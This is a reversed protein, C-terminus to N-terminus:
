TPHTSDSTKAAPEAPKNSDLHRIDHGEYLYVVEEAVNTAHDAIRELSKSVVMLNLCRTIASPRQAMLAAMERQLRTNMEDVAEDRPIVARAKTPDRHVFADLAHSWSVAKQSGDEGRLLPTTARDHGALVSLAEWGKPCAKGLNVPYDAAPSSNIAVGDKLHVNLGCGTSCFGCVMTTTKDPTLRAPVQGLGFGGPVRELQDTLPGTKAHILQAIKAAIGSPPKQSM